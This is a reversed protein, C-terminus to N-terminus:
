KWNKIGGIYVEDVHYYLFTRDGREFKHMLRDIFSRDPQTSFLSYVFQGTPSHLRAQGNRLKHRWNQSPLKLFTNIDMLKLRHEPPNVWNYNKKHRTIKFQRNVKSITEM